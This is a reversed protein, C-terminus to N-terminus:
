RIAGLSLSTVRWSVNSPFFTDESLNGPTKEVFITKSQDWHRAWSPRLRLANEPTFLSSTETLHARPDFGFKGAGGYAKSNPLM